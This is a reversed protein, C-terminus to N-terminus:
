LEQQLPYTRNKLNDNTKEVLRKLLHEKHLVQKLRAMVYEEAEDRKKLLM